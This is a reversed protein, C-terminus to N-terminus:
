KLFYQTSHHIPIMKYQQTSNKITKIRYKSNISLSSLPPILVCCFTSLKINFNLLIKIYEDFSSFTENYIYYNEKKFKSDSVNLVLYEGSIIYGVSYCFMFPHKGISYSINYDHNLRKYSGFFQICQYMHLSKKGVNHTGTICKVVNGICSEMLFGSLMYLPGLKKTSSALHSVQHFKSVMMEEGFNKQILVISNHFRQNLTNIDSNKIPNLLMSISSVFYVLSEYESETVLNELVPYLYQVLVFNEIAKFSKLYKLDSIGRKFMPPIQVNHIIENLYNENNKSKVIKKLIKKYCGHFITHMIDIPIQHVLDFYPITILISFKKIGKLLNNDSNGNFNFSINNKWVQSDRNVYPIKTLYVIKDHKYEGHHSCGGCSSKSNPPVMGLLECKAMLDCIIAFLFLKIKIGPLFSFEEGEWLEILESVFHYLISNFPLKRETFLNIYNFEKSFRLEPALENFTSSLVWVSKGGSTWKSAGDFSATLSLVLDADKCENELKKYVTGDFVDEIGDENVKKRRNKYNMMDIFKDKGYKEIIDEITDKIPRTFFAVIKEGCICNFKDTASNYLKECKTCCYRKNFKFPVNINLFSDVNTKMKPLTNKWVGKLCNNFIKLLDGFKSKSIGSESYFNTLCLVFEIYSYGSGECITEKAFFSNNILDPENRYTENFNSRNSSDLNKEKLFNDNDNMQNINSKNKVCKSTIIESKKIMRNLKRKINRKSKSATM